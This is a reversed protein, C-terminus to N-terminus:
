QICATSPAAAAPRNSPTLFLESTKATPQANVGSKPQPKRVERGFSAKQRAPQGTAAAQKRM